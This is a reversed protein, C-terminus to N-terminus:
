YPGQGYDEDVPNFPANKHKGERIAAAIAERPTATYIPEKDLGFYFAIPFKKHGNRRLLCSGPQFLLEILDDLMQSDAELQNIELIVRDLDEKAGTDRLGSFSTMYANFAQILRESLKM